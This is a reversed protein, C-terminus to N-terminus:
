RGETRLAMWTWAAGIWEGVAFLILIWGAGTLALYVLFFGIATRGHVTARFFATTNSQVTRLYYYGVVVMFAGLLRIWPEHTLPLRLIALLTNPSLVLTLGTLAMYIAFGVITKATKSMDNTLATAGIRM